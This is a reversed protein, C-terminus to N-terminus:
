LQLIPVICKHFPNLFRQTINECAFTCFITVHCLHSDVSQPLMTEKLAFVTFKAYSLYTSFTKLSDLIKKILLNLTMGVVYGLKGVVLVSIFAISCRPNRKSCLPLLILNFAAIPKSLLMHWIHFWLCSTYITQWSIEFLHAEHYIIIACYVSFLNSSFDKSAILVYFFKTLIDYNCNGSM